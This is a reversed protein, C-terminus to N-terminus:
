CWGHDPKRGVKGWTPSDSGLILTQRGGPAANVRTSPRTVSQETHEAFPASLKFLDPKAAEAPAVVGFLKASSDEFVKRTGDNDLMQSM